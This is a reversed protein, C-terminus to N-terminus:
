NVAQPEQVGQKMEGQERAKITHDADICEPKASVLLDNVSFDATGKYDKIIGLMNRYVEIERSDTLILRWSKNRYMSWNEKKAVMM